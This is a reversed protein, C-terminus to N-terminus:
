KTTTTQLSQVYTSLGGNTAQNTYTGLIQISQQSIEEAQTLITIEKKITHLLVVLYVIIGFVVISLISKLINTKMPIPNTGGSKMTDLLQYYLSILKQTISIAQSKKAPDTIVPNTPEYLVGVAVVGGAKFYSETLYQFGGLGVNEGWSNVFKIAREGKYICPEVGCVFHGWLGTKSSPAIPAASLWSGNNQGQVELICGGTDRIAQAVSDIDTGTFAYSLGKYISAENPNQTWTKDELNQETAPYSPVTSELNVGYSILRKFVDRMITGGGLYWIMSYISKASLPLSKKLIQQLYAGAQGGCSDSISQDKIAIEFPTDTVTSWDFPKSSKAIHKWKHDRLDLRQRKAGKGFQQENM